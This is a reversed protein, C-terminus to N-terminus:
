ETYGGIYADEIKTLYWYNQKVDKMFIIDYDNFNENIIKFASFLNDTTGVKTM